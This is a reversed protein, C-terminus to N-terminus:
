RKGTEAQEWFQALNKRKASDPTKPHKQMFAKAIEDSYFQKAHQAQGIPGPMDIREAEAIADAVRSEAKAVEDVIQRFVASPKKGGEADSFGQALYSSVKTAVIEADVSQSDCYLDLIERSYNEMFTSIGSLKGVRDLKIVLEETEGKASRMKPTPIGLAAVDTLKVNRPDAPQLTGRDSIYYRVHDDWIMHLLSQLVPLQDRVASLRALEAVSTRQRWKLMQGGTHYATDWSRLANRAEPIDMLGRLALAISITIADSTSSAQFKVESRALITALSANSHLRDELYKEVDGNHRGPYTVVIFAKKCDRADPVLGDPILESLAKGMERVDEEAGEMTRTAVVGAAVRLVDEVKTLLAPRGEASSELADDFLRQLADITHHVITDPKDAGKEWVQGVQRQAAGSFAKWAGGTELSFSGSNMAVAFVDSLLTTAKEM